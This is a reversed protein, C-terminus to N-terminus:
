KHEINRKEEGLVLMAGEMVEQGSIDGEWPPVGNSRYNFNGSSCQWKTAAEKGQQGTRCRTDGSYGVYSM